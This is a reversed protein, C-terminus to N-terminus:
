LDISDDAFVKHHCSLFNSGNWKFGCGKLCCHCNIIKEGFYSFDVWGGQVEKIFGTYDFSCSVSFIATSWESFRSKFYLTVRRICIKSCIQQSM